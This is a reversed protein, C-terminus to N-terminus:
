VEEPRNTRIEGNELREKMDRYLIEQIIKATITHSCFIIRLDYRAQWAALSAFFAAPAFQSRYEHRLIKDWSGDEVLLYVTAGAAQAREFERRFRDRGRTLNGALEDLSMKREIVCKATITVSTDYLKGGSPLTVNACYDGYSMVSHQYPATFAAFRRKARSTRQERTDVILEFSELIEMNETKM